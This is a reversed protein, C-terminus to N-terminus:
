QSRVGHVLIQRQTKFDKFRKNTLNLKLVSPSTAGRWDTSEVSWDFTEEVELSFLRRTDTDADGKELEPKSTRIVALRGSNEPYETLSYRVQSLHPEEGPRTEVIQTELIMRGAGEGSATQIRVGAKLPNPYASDLDQTMSKQLIRLRDAKSSQSLNRTVVTNSEWLFQFAMSSVLMLSLMVVLLEILSIGRTRLRM